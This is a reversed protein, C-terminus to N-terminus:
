KLGKFLWAIFGTFVISLVGGVATIASLM